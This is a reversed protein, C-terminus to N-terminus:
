CVLRLHQLRGYTRSAQQTLFTGTIVTSMRDEDKKPSAETSYFGSKNLFLSFFFFLPFPESPLIGTCEKGLVKDMLLTHLFYNGALVGPGQPRGDGWAHM